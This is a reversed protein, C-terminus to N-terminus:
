RIEWGCNPNWHAFRSRKIADGLQIEKIDEETLCLPMDIRTWNLVQFIELGKKTAIFTVRWPPNPADFMPLVVSAHSSPYSGVLVDIDDLEVINPVQGRSMTPPVRPDGWAEDGLSTITANAIVIDGHAINGSRAPTSAFVATIILAWLKPAKM